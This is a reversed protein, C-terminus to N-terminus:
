DNLSARLMADMKHRQEIKAKCFLAIDNFGAFQKRLTSNAYSKCYLQNNQHPIEM